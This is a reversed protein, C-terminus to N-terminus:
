SNSWILVPDPSSQGTTLGFHENYFGEEVYYLRIDKHIRHIAKGELKQLMHPFVNVSFQQARRLLKGDHAPDFNASLLQGIVYKGESGYPVVVAETESDIAHFLNASTRFAQRLPYPPAKQQRQKFANVAQENASLLEIQAISHGPNIEVPYPMEKRRAFFYHEYFLNMLDPGLPNNKFRGPNKAFESLAMRAVRQGEKIEPLKDLPEKSLAVVHVMGREREGHRNCRGAAQAISDLGALARVVVAFSIDVGAEILQTSACLVPQKKKLRERMADLKELRHAPCMSTSLHFLAEEDVGAAQALEFVQRATAKTNVICLCSGTSRFEELALDALQEVSWDSGQDMHNLLQVRELEAFHRHVDPMLEPHPSMRLVGCAEDVKDLLPQTATCLLVSSGAQEVLFNIANNFLHVCRVPLCQIEDFVIVSRTLQHMRRAGRTGRGFLAELFQVMTTYVVPADWDDCLMKERWTQREPLLNGHHELVIKGPMKLAAAEPDLVERITKANQDIIATFPLVYIVRDLGHHQAHHLVFRAGALTKGAGTPATFTYIGRERHAADRCHDAIKRRVTDIAHALPMDALHKELRDILVSWDAYRGDPRQRAARPHEFDATDIRDAALLASLLFRGMLGKQQAQRRPHLRGLLVEVESRLCPNAMLRQARDLIRRDVAQLVEQYHTREDHKEMRKSFVDEGEADLCDILGGHHSAIALAALQRLLRLVADTSADQALTQWVHQAGATSHDVKGKLAAADVWDEDEDPNLLGTASRIYTQFAASYKGLDHLLGVLEGLLPCGLKHAHRRTRWAVGRLHRELAQEAGDSQRHHAIPKAVFM